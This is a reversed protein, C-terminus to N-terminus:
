RTPAATEPALLSLQAASEALQVTPRYRAMVASVELAGRRVEGTEDVGIESPRLLMLAELLSQSAGRLRDPDERYELTFRSRYESFVENWTRDVVEASIPAGPDDMAAAALAAGWLLAAHAPTGRGPFTMSSMPEIAPDILVWGEARCEVAAGTLREVDAVIRRRRWRAYSAEEDSLDDFAVVPETLLRRAIRHRMGTQRADASAPEPDILFDSTISVDRLVSPSNVLLRSLTDRDIDYLADGEGDGRLWQDTAGDRLSVVGRDTLWSVADVLARRQDYSTLDIPLTEDGASSRLIDEALSSLTTQEGAAEIAAISLCLLSCAWRGLPRGTRTIPGRDNSVAVARRYLRACSRGFELRYGLVRSFENALPAEWRRLQALAGPRPWQETVLPHALLMRACRQFDELEAQDIQVAARPGSARPGSATSRPGGLASM